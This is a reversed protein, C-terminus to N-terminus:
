QVKIVLLTQDDHLMESGIFKKLDAKVVDAIKNGSLKNNEKIISKIKDISYQKGSTNLAENVGDTFAVIIDDKGVSFEIDKYTSSKEVGLPECTVSLLDVSQSIASYRLVSINGSTSLQVKRSIPNYNILAVSAFRDLNGESCLGRNTWSLITGATQTTNVILRLMARVMTLVLLSNMGKGAVDMLVFSYRDQRASILDFVDSCVGATQETFTGISLGAVPILKKPILGAQIESAIESEKTLEKQERYTKFSITTQLSVEAFGVLTKVWNFENESFAEKGFDRSLALLGVVTDKARLKLPVLILSGLKLFDEPGNQFVREDDTPRVLLEAKGVTAAEGFINDRLPFQENKFRISVREPKHPLDDALKYPPPFNGFFSKVAIIDDFDDVMLVAGGDAKSVEICTKNITDLLAKTDGDLAFSQAALSIFNEGKDILNIEEPKVDEVIIEKPPEIAIEAEEKKEVMIEQKGFIRLVCYPILLLIALLLYFNYNFNPNIFAKVSAYVLVAIALYFIFSVKAM